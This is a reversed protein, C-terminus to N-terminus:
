AEVYAFASSHSHIACLRVTARICFLFSIIAVSAHRCEHCTKAAQWTRKLKSTTECRSCFSKSEGSAIHTDILIICNKKQPTWRKTWCASFNGNWWVRKLKVVILPFMRRRRHSDFLLDLSLEIHLDFSISLFFSLFFHLHLFIQSSRM